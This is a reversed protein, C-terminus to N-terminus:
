VREFVKVQVARSIEFDTTHHVLVNCLIIAIVM